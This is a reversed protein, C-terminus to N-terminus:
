FAFDVLFSSCSTTDPVPIAVTTGSNVAVRGYVLEKVFFQPFVVCEGLFIGAPSFKLVVEVLDFLFVVRCFVDNVVFIDVIGDEVLFPLLPEDFAGIAAFDVSVPEDGGDAECGAAVCRVEFVEAAEAAFVEVRGSPGLVADVEAVLVNCDNAGAGTPDLYDLIDAGCSRM